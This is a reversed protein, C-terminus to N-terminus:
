VVCTSSVTHIHISEISTHYYWVPIRNSTHTHKYMYTSMFLHHLLLVDGGVCLM